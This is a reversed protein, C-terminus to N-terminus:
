MHHMEKVTTSLDILRRVFMRGPRVATAFFNLKGVLSLLERKKCTRRSCWKPLLQLVEDMKEKPISITFSITDIQIGLYVMTTAPGVLKDLAVPVGLFKFVALLIELNQQALVLCAKTFLLYDDAYHIVVLTYNTTLIWCLLDAFDTFISPSSRSGFPLKLDVYFKGEWFYVLLPWDEPRVPLLRFAHKIDVKSLFCGRGMQRVLATAVDFHVYETPFDEKSIHDNVSLGNPQSLDMILRATGDSKIAAGIPSIHNREFPPNLFPGATHKREIEKNIGKTVLEKNRRASANNQPFTETFEGRYGIDFGDTFGRIMKQVKEQQPHFKLESAFNTVNVYENEVGDPIAKFIEPKPSPSPQTLSSTTPKPSQSDPQTEPDSLPSPTSGGVSMPPLVFRVKKRKKEVIEKDPFKLIPQPVPFQTSPVPNQASSEVDSNVVVCSVPVPNNLM